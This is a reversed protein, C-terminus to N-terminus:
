NLRGVLNEVFANNAHIQYQREDGYIPIGLYAIREVGKEAHPNYITVDLGAILFFFSDKDLLKISLAKSNNHYKELQEAQAKMQESEPIFYTYRINKKINRAVVECFDGVPPLDYSLDSSIVWVEPIKTIKINKEYNVMEATTLVWDLTKYEGYRKISDSLEIHLRDIKKGYFRSLIFMPLILCVVIIGATIFLMQLGINEQVFNIILAIVVVSIGALIGSLPNQLPHWKSDKSEMSM